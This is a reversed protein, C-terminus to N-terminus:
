SLEELIKVATSSNLGEFRYGTPTVLTLTAETEPERVTVPIFSMTTTEAKDEKRLGTVLSTHAMWCCFTNTHLGLEQAIAAMTRGKQLESLGYAVAREHIEKAYIRIIGDKKHESVLERIAIGEQKMTQVGASERKIRGGKFLEELHSIGSGGLVDLNRKRIM